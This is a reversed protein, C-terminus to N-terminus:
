DHNTKEEYDTLHHKLKEVGRKIHSKVTGLPLELSDSIERHSLGEQYSLVVCTREMTGLHALATAIDRAANNDSRGASLEDETISTALVDHKRCHQLWTNIAIKRLWAGFALDDLLNGLKTFSTIFTQQALDDALSSDNAMRRLMSRLNSQHRIVLQQFATQDGQKALKVLIPEPCNPYFDRARNM